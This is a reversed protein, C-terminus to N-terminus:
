QDCEDTKLKKCKEESDESRRKEKAIKEQPQDQSNDDTMETTLFMRTDEVFKLVIDNFDQLVRSSIYHMLSDAHSALTGVCVDMRQYLEIFSFM